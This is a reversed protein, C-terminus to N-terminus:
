YTGMACPTLPQFFPKLDEVTEKPLEAVIRKVEDEMENPM